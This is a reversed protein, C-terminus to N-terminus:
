KIIQKCLALFYFTEHLNLASLNLGSFGSGYKSLM